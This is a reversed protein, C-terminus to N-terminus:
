GIATAHSLPKIWTWLNPCRAGFASPTTTLRSLPSCKACIPKAPPTAWWLPATGLLLIPTHGAKQLHRIVILQLFHGVHLSDATADFGIYFTVKENDLKEQIKELNTAQAILGRAKLEEFVTM